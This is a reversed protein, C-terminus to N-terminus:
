ETKDTKKQEDGTWLLPKGPSGPPQSQQKPSGSAVAARKKNKCPCGM